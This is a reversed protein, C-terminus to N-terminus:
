SRRYDVRIPPRWDGDLGGHSVMVQMMGVSGVALNHASSQVVVQYTGSSGTVYPMNAEVEIDGTSGTSNTPWVRLTVGTSSNIYSTTDTSSVLGTLSVLMDNGIWWARAFAM